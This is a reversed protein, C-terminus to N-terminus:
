LMILLAQITKSVCEAAQDINDIQTEVIRNLKDQVIQTYQLAGSLKSM